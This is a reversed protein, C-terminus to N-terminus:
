FLGMGALVNSAYSQNNFNAGMQPGALRNYPGYDGNLDIMVENAGVASSAPLVGVNTALDMLGMGAIGLAAGRILPMKATSVAAIVGLGAQAMNILKPNAGPVIKELAAPIMRAAFMGLVMGGALTTDNQYKRPVLGGVRGRSRSSRKKTTKKRAM